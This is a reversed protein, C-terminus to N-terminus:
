PRMWELEVCRWKGDKFIHGLGGNNSFSGLYGSDWDKIYM